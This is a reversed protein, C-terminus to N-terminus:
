RGAGEGKGARWEEALMGFLLLDEFEGRVLTAKKLRGERRFGLREAVGQSRRNSAACRIEVRNLGREGLLEDILARVARTVIGRGQFREGLWYGIEAYCKIRDITHAGVIGAMEGDVWIGLHIETGRAFGELAKQVFQESDSVNKTEDVWFFWPRLHDRNADVLRFIAGAHHRELLKLETSQDIRHSLM